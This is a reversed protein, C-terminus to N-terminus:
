PKTKSVPRNATPSQRPSTDYSKGKLDGPATTMDDGPDWSGQSLGCQRGCCRRVAAQGATIVTRWAATITVPLHTLVCSPTCPLETSLKGM